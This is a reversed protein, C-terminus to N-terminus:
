YVCVVAALIAARRAASGFCQESQPEAQEARVVMSQTVADGNAPEAEPVPRAEIARPERRTSGAAERAEPV